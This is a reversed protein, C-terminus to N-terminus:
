RSEFNMCDIEEGRYGVSIESCECELHNNHSCGSVKCAGVGAIAESTGGKGSSRCFTDCMPHVDDGITIAFAHCRHEWNYSCDGVECERVMAMEM